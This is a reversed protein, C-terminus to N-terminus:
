LHLRRPKIGTFALMVLLIIGFFGGGGSGESASAAAKNQAAAGNGLPTPSSIVANTSYSVFLSMSNDSVSVSSIDVASLAGNYLRTSPTTNDNVAAVNGEYFLNRAQGYSLASDILTDGVAAVLDVRKRNVNANDNNLGRTGMSDDIHWVALGGYNNSLILYSLGEDYGANQRNEVLFYENANATPIKIINANSQHAAQITTVSGNEPIDPDIWGMAIRSWADLMVPTAGAYVETNKKGWSGFGMLSWGGVGYSVATIDYLDPLSFLSHGLEHAVIGMTLPHDGHREGVISYTMGDIVTDIVVTSGNKTQTPASVGSFSTVFSRSQGWLRPSTGDSALAKGTADKGFSAEYGGLVVVITLEASTVRGDNNVDFQIFDIYSMAQNIADAAIRNSKFSSTSQATAEPTTAGLRMWGVVGDNVTGHSETAPVLNLTGKSAESFYHAVTQETNTANSFFIKQITDPHTTACSICNAAALADDYYALLVIMPITGTVSSIANNGGVAKFLQHRPSAVRGPILHKEIGHKEPEDSGVILHTALLGRNTILSKNPGSRTAYVWEDSENKIITYGSSTEVWQRESNGKQYVSIQTGDPQIIFSNVPAALSSAQVQGAM